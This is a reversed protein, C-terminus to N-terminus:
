AYIMKSRNCHKGSLQAMLTCPKYGFINAAETATDYYVGIETHLVIKSAPSSILGTDAAHQANESRTSWELAIVRNDKKDGWKHNIEPKNEPNPIFYTAVLRHLKFKTGVNNKWISVELYGDKDKSPILIREKISKFRGDIRQIVRAVSKVNGLDSVEYMGEYGDIEKWNEIM